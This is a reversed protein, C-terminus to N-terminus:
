IYYATFSLSYLWNPTFQKDHGPNSVSATIDNLDTLIIQFKEPPGHKRKSVSNCRLKSYMDDAVAILSYFRHRAESPTSFLLDDHSVFRLLRLFLSHELIPLPVYHLAVAFSKVIDRSSLPKSARVYDLQCSM